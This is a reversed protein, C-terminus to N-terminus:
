PKPNWSKEYYVYDFLIAAGIFLAKDEVTAAEPWDVLYNDAGCCLHRTLSDYNCGGFFKQVHGAPESEDIAGNVVRNVDWLLNQCCIPFATGLFNCHPGCACFNVNINYKDEWVGNNNVQLKYPVKCCYQAACCACLYNGCSWDEVIKGVTQGNVEVEMTHPCCFRGGLACQKNLRFYSQSMGADTVNMSFGRFSPCCTLQLCLKMCGDSKETALMARPLAFVESMDPSWGDDGLSKMVSKQEPLAAVHFKNDFECCCGCPVFTQILCEYAQADQYVVAGKMTDLTAM